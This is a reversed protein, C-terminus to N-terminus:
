LYLFQKDLWPMIRMKLLAIDIGAYAQGVSVLAVKEHKLRFETPTCDYERRFAMNFAKVSPFGHDLAIDSIAKKPKQALDSLSKELRYLTLYRLFTEGVKAKFYRSLYAESLGLEEALLSLSIHEQYRSSIQSLLDNMLLTSEMLDPKTPNTPPFYRTFLLGLQALLSTQAQQWHDAKYHQEWWLHAILQKINPLMSKQVLNWDKMPRSDLALSAFNHQLCLVLNDDEISQTAHPLDKNIFLVDGEQLAFIEDMVQVRIRGKVVWLCEHADHHHLECQTVSHAFVRSEEELIEARNSLYM